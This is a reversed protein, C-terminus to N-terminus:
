IKSGEHTKKHKTKVAEDFWIATLCKIRDEKWTSSPRKKRKKKKKNFKKEPEEEEPIHTQIVNKWFNSIYGWFIGRQM